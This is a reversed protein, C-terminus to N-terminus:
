HHDTRSRGLSKRFWVPDITDVQMWREPMMSVTFLEERTKETRKYHRLRLTFVYRKWCQKMKIQAKTHQETTWNGEASFVTAGMDEPLEILCNNDILFISFRKLRRYKPVFRIRNECLTFTHLSEPLKSPLEVLSNHNLTLIELTDPLHRPFKEIRNHDLHLERLTTPWNLSLGAFRLNNYAVDMRELSPPLRSQIMSVENSDAILTILTQPLGSLLQIRNKGVDLYQVNSHRLFGVEKFRNKSLNLTDVSPYCMVFDDEDYLSLYNQNAQLVRLNPFPLLFGDQALRNDSVNLLVLSQPMGDLSTLRNGHVDLEQLVLRTFDPLTEFCANPLRLSM